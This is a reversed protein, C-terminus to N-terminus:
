PRAPCAARLEELAPTIRDLTQLGRSYLRTFYGNPMQRSCEVTEGRSNIICVSDSPGKVVLSVDPDNRGPPIESFGRVEEFRSIEYKYLRYGEFASYTEALFVCPEPEVVRYLFANELGPGDEPPGDWDYALFSGPSAKIWTTEGYAVPIPAGDDIGDIALAFLDLRQQQPTSPLIPTEAAAAILPPLLTEQPKSIEASPAQNFYLFTALGGLAIGLIAALIVKM